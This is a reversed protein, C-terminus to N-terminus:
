GVDDLYCCDLQHGRGLRAGVQARTDVVDAIQEKATFEITEELRSLEDVQDLVRDIRLAPFAPAAGPRDEVVIEPASQDDLLVRFQLRHQGAAQALTTGVMRTKTAPPVPSTP